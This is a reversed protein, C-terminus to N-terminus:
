IKDLTEKALNLITQSESGNKILNELAIKCVLKDLDSFINDQKHVVLERVLTSANSRKEEKAKQERAQRASTYDDIKKLLRNIMRQLDTPCKDTKSYINDGEHRIYKLEDVLFLRSCNGGNGFTMKHYNSKESWKFPTKSEIHSFLDLIFNKTREIKEVLKLKKSM